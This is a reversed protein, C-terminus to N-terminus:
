GKKERIYLLQSSLASDNIYKLVNWTQKLRKYYKKNRNDKICDVYEKSSCYYNEETWILSIQIKQEVETREEKSKASFSILWQLSFKM